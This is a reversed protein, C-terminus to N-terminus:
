TMPGLRQIEVHTRGIFRHTETRQLWHFATLVLLKALAIQLFNLRPSQKRGLWVM